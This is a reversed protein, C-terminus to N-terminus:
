AHAVDTPIGSAVRGDWANRTTTRKFTHWTPKLSCPKECMLLARKVEPAEDSNGYIRQHACVSCAFLNITM